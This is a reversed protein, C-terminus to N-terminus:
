MIKLYMQRHPGIQDVEFEGSIFEFGTNLYFRYAAQRANCWIYNAKLGRLYVIGFNLLQNGAGMNRFDPHTAMGRLQYGDGPFDNHTRQHFTVASIIQGLRFDGLHFSCKENDGEFYCEEFPKGDRLVESRLLLTQTTDIFKIM